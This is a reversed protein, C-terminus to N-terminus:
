YRNKVSLDTRGPLIQRAIEAWQNGYKRHAEFLLNDEEKTWNGKKVAPRLHNCWRDRCQKGVRGKLLSAIKTWSKEGYKEIAEELITDEETTWTHKSFKRRRMSEHSDSDSNSSVQFKQSPKMYAPM